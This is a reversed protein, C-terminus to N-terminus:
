RDVLVSQERDDGGEDGALVQGPRIPADGGGLCGHEGGTGGQGSDQRAETAGGGAQPQVADSKGQRRHGDVQDAWDAVQLCLVLLLSAAEDLLCEVTEAEQ